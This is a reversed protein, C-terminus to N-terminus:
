ELEGNEQFSYHRGEAVVVHDLVDLGLLKGAEVLRRTLRRDEESPAPDGSPHNHVLVLCAASCRIAPEFVERPHVLSANLTGISVFEKHLLRNRTDLYLVVFHEKKKQRIEAVERCVDRPTQLLPRHDRSDLHRRALEWAAQLAAARSAGVGKLAALDRFPMEYLARGPHRALLEHALTLVDKHRYGTRLLIALLEEDRLSGPGTRSLKERPKEVPHLAHIPIKKKPRRDISVAAPERIQEPETM